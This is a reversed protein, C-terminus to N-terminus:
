SLTGRPPYARRFAAASVRRVSRRPLAALLPSGLTLSLAALLPSGLTLSLAASVRRCPRPSRLFGRGGFFARVGFVFGLRGGSVAM